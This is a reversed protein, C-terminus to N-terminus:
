KERSDQSPSEEAADVSGSLVKAYTERLYELSADNDASYNLEKQFVQHRYRCDNLIESWTKVWIRNGGDQYLVGDPKDSARIQKKAMANIDNSVIWFTWRAPINRFREDEMISFAYKQIQTTEELGIKVVPAKLEIILHDVENLRSNAVRQSLMLDVIGKTGDLLKVPENIVPDLGAARMHQRLVETMSKDNVTLAFEEGFIWTNDAIIKHLQSREKFTRKLDQDFLMKSLGDLLDLRDAVLKAASIISTLTTRKLLKALDELKKQPLGLVEGLILQLEAPSKEIAQRLMRLQFKKNKYDLSNFDPLSSAVNLAVIDFMQREVVQVPSRPEAEFPYVRETKWQDVLTRANEQARERFHARMGEKAREILAALPEDLEAADLRGEASLLSNYATRLYSCFNFGPAQVGPSIAHLPVGNEDCLYMLRETENKWEVIELASSFEKGEAFFNPLVYVARRNIGAAPDVNVGCISLKAEPYDTLYLAYTEAVSQLFSERCIDWNKYLETVKVEVGTTSGPPALQPASLRVKRAEDKIVVASFLVNQGAQDKGIVTWEAVRGLALAKFRGRGEEGHLFRKQNRSKRSNRKWSGGLNGFLTEIEEPAIGHGNDKVRIAEVGLANKDLEVSIRAAEADLSNWILESIAQLASASTLRELFDEQVEVDLIRDPM